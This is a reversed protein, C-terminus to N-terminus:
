TTAPHASSEARPRHLLAALPLCMAAGLVGCSFTTVAAVETGGHTFSWGALAPACMIAAALTTGWVGAYTARAHPPAIRNVIDGTAVFALIEGPVAAAAATSYGLTTSAFGAAGIGAGLILASLALPGVMPTPRAARRALLPNLLPSFVLVAGASAIQTWGYSAASLRDRAMMLPLTSFLAAVPVLTLLSALWLVWLRADTLADRYGGRQVAAAPASRPIVRLALVAVAACVIGNLWFLAPIGAPGALAGGVAGTTAAGLNTAFHRWGTIRARGAEDPIEDAVVAAVIPRPADYVAGTVVAAAALAVPTHVQALLPFAVAAVLMAGTFSNRRGIRDALAGWLVQGVLWGCGFAVLVTSTSASTMGLEDLRYALYPYVFGAARAAFTAGLLAWIVPPWRRPTPAAPPASSVKAPLTSVSM